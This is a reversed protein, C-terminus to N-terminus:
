AAKKKFGFRIRTNMPEVARELDMLYDGFRNIHITRYTYRSAISFARARL